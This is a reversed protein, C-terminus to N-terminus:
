PEMVGCLWLVYLSLLSLEVRKKILRWHVENVLAADILM